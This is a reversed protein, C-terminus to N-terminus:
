LEVWVHKLDRTRLALLTGRLELATVAGDPSQYRPSLRTGPTFGFSRLRAELAEPLTIRTVTGWLRPPLATLAIEM